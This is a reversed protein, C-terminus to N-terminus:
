TLIDTILCAAKPDTLYAIGSEWVRIKTGIGEEKITKATIAMSQKFTCAKQPVIVLVYDDTVNTSTKFNLGVINMITGKTVQDSSHGPISSGKGGILWDMVIEECQPTMYCSAGEADYNNDKILRKAHLLDLIIKAAYSAADWQDGGVATTAFFNITSPSQSETMVDWIDADVDRVIVRTLDRITTALVDLEATKIDEMSIFGEVFYKKPYSTTRTWSVELQEPASLPSVNKTASPSTAELVGATKQFWRISDGSMSSVQCDTKFIFAEDAFGKALKDIDLGRIDQEEVRDATM